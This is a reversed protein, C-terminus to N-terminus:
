YAIITGYQGEHRYLAKTAEIIGWVSSRKL